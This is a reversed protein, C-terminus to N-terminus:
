SAIESTTSTKHTTHKRTNTSDTLLVQQECNCLHLPANGVVQWTTKWTSTHFQHSLQIFSSCLRYPKPTALLDTMHVTVFSQDQVHHKTQPMKIKLTLILIGETALYMQVEICVLAKHAFCVLAPDWLEPLSWAVFPAAQHLGSCSSCSHSTRGEIPASPPFRRCRWKWAWLSGVSRQSSPLLFAPSCPTDFGAPKTRHLAQDEHCQCAEQLAFSSSIHSNSCNICM